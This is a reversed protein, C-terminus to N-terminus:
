RAAAVAAGALAVVHFSQDVAITLAAPPTQARKVGRLWARVLRGDDILLHPGAVLAGVALARTAGRGRGVWALAPIFALTYTGVHRALARRGLGDEIGKTKHQAQWDTQLLVDGVVHSVLLVLLSAPWTVQAARPDTVSKSVWM